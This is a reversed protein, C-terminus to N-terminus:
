TLNGAPLHHALTKTMFSGDGKQLLKLIIVKLPPKFFRHIEDVQKKTIKLTFM